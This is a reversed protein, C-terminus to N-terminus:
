PVNEIVLEAGEVAEALDSTLRITGVGAPHALIGLADLAQEASQLSTGARELAAPAIDYARVHLGGRALRAAIGPGMTGLGILAVNNIMRSGGHWQATSSKQPMSPQSSIGCM